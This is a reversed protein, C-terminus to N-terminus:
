SKSKKAAPAETPESIGNLQEITMELKDNFQDLPIGYRESQCQKYFNYKLAGITLLETLIDDAPQGPISIEIKVLEMIQEQTLEALDPNKEKRSKHEAKVQEYHSRLYYENYLQQLMGITFNKMEQLHAQFIMRANSNVGSGGKGTQGTNNRMAGTSAANSLLSLAIGFAQYITERKAIAVSLLDVPTEPAAAQALKRGTEIDIKTSYNEDLTTAKPLIRKGEPMPESGYPIRSKYMESEAANILGRTTNNPHANVGNGLYEATQPLLPPVDSDKKEPICETILSPNARAWDAIITSYKKYNYLEFEPLLATVTSNLNGFSDVFAPNRVFTHVNKIEQRMNGDIDNSQAQEESSVVRFYRFAMRGFADKYLQIELNELPLCLFPMPMDPQKIVDPDIIVAAFDLAFLYRWVQLAFVKTRESFLKAKLQELKHEKREFHVGGSFLIKLCINTANRIDIENDLGWLAQIIQQQSIRWFRNNNWLDAIPGQYTHQERQRKLLKPHLTVSM